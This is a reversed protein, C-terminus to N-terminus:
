FQDYNIAAVLAVSDKDEIQELAVFDLADEPPNSDDDPALPSLPQDQYLDEFRQEPTNPTVPSSVSKRRVDLQGDRLFVPIGQLPTHFHATADFSQIPTTLHHFADDSLASPDHPDQFALPRIPDPTTVLVNDTPQSHSPFPDLLDTTKTSKKRRPRPAPKLAAKSARLQSAHVPCRGCGTVLTNQCLTGARTPAGCVPAADKTM